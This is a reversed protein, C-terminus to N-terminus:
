TEKIFEFIANEAWAKDKFRRDVSPAEAKTSPFLVHQGAQQWALTYKAGLEVAATAVTAPDSIMKETLEMFAAGIAQVNAMGSPNPDPAQSMFEQILKQSRAAGAAMNASFKLPDYVLPPTAPTNMLRAKKRRFSQAAGSRM